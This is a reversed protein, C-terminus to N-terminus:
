SAFDPQSGDQDQQCCQYRDSFIQDCPELLNQTLVLHPLLDQISTLYHRDM